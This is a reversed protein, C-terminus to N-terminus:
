AIRSHMVALDSISHLKEQRIDKLNVAPIFLNKLYKIPKESNKFVYYRDIKYLILCLYNKIIEIRIQNQKRNPILQYKTTTKNYNDVLEDVCLKINLTDKPGKAVFFRTNM